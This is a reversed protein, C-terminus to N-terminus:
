SPRRCLMARWCLVLHASLPPLQSHLAQVVLEGQSHRSPTTTCPSHLPPVPRVSGQRAECVEGEGKSGEEGSSRVRGEGGAQRLLGVKYFRAMAPSSLTVASEEDRPPGSDDAGGGMGGSGDSPQQSGDLQM